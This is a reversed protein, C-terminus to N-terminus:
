AAQDPTMVTCTRPTSEGVFPRSRAYRTKAPGTAAGADTKVRDLLALVPGEIPKGLACSFVRAPAAADLPVDAAALSWRPSGKLARTAEYAARDPAQDVPPPPLASVSRLAATDLYGPSWGPILSQASAAGAALVGLALLLHKM